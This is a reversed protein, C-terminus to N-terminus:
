PPSLSISCETWARRMGWHGEIRVCGTAPSGDSFAARGKVTKGPALVLRVDRQGAEVEAVAYRDDQPGYSLWDDPAADAQTIRRGDIGATVDRIQQARAGGATADAAGGSHVAARQADPEPADDSCGHLFGMLGAVLLGGCAVRGIM